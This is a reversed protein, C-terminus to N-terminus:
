ASIGFFITTKLKESIFIEQKEKNLIITFQINRPKQNNTLGFLVNSPTVKSLKSIKESNESIKNVLRNM